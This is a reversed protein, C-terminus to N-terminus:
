NTPSNTAAKQDWATGARSSSRCQDHRQMAHVFSLILQGLNEGYNATAAVLPDNGAAGQGGIETPKATGPWSAYTGCGIRNQRPGRTSRQM